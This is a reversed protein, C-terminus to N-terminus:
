PSTRQLRLAATIAAKEPAHPDRRLAENWEVQADRQQGKQALAMGLHFRYEARDPSKEVLQRLLFVAPDVRNTKIYVLALTDRLEDEAPKAQIAKTVLQEAENLSAGSQALEFALDNMLVPNSPDKQLAVRFQNASASSQGAASLAHALEAQSTVSNSDFECAKRAADVAEPFDGALRYAVALGRWAEANKAQESVIRRSAQVGVDYRGALIAVNALNRLAFIPDRSHAAEDTWLAIAEDPKHRALAVSSLGQLVESSSAGSKYFRRYAQEAADPKGAALYARGLEVAVDELNPRERQLALLESIGSAHQGSLVLAKAHLVRAVLDEPHRKQVAASAELAETADGTELGIQALALQLPKPDALKGLLGRFLKGAALYDKQRFLARALGYQVETDDPKLKLLSEFEARARTVDAADNSEVLMSARLGRLGVNGPSKDILASLIQVAEAKKGQANIVLALQRGYREDGPHEQAGKTLWTLAADLQERKYLFDGALLAGDPVHSTDSALRELIKEGAAENHYRFYHDALALLAEASFPNNHVELERIRQAEASNNNREAQAALEDYIGPFTKDREILQFGVTAAEQAQGSVSLAHVLALQVNDDSAKQAAALRLLPVANAPQDDMLALIGKFRFTEFSGPGMQELAATMRSITPKLTPDAGSPNLLYIVLCLDALRVKPETEQPMLEVARSLSVFAEHAEGKRAESIGLQLYAPGYGTDKQIAKRYNLTAEASKGQGAFAKGRDVYYRASRSCGLAAAAILITAGVTLYFQWKM